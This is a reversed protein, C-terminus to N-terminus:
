SAHDIVKREIRISPGDDFCAFCAVWGPVTESRWAEGAKEDFSEAYRAMIEQAHNLANAESSHVSIETDFHRDSLVVIFVEPLM